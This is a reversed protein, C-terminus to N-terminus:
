IGTLSKTLKELRGQASGDIVLDDARVIAGGLLTPDITYNLTVHKDLRKELAQILNAQQDDSLAKAATVEVDVKQELQAQYKDYLIAIAPLVLLRGEDALLRIYNEGGDVMVQQTMEILLEAAQQQTVHPNTLYDQVQKDGVMAALAQLLVFWAALQQQEHAYEFAAKAYPRAVTTEESSM